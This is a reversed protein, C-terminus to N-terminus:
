PTWPTLGESPPAARMGDVSSKPRQDSADGGSALRRWGGPGVPPRFGQSTLWSRSQAQGFWLVEIRRANAATPRHVSGVLRALRVVAHAFWRPLLWPRAGGSLDRMLGAATVGEAPHTVVRPPTLRCTALFAVAAGVNPLLAQPSGQDGPRAVSAFPSSAIRTIMQTVRRDPAHVSPPRYRVIEVGTPPEFSLVREGAIKSASYPSFAQMAESEDLVLRDNQVVASSVHVVRRVGARVAAELVVRPLLANAGFLADEDLSSANPMGASNVVVDCGCFARELAGLSPATAAARALAAPTRAATVLRPAGVGIVEHDVLAQAVAAGVFGTAGVLAVRSV